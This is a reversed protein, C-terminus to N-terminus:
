PTMLLRASYAFIMVQPDSILRKFGMMTLTNSFREEFLKSAIDLGYLGGLLRVIAPMETDSFGKPRRM